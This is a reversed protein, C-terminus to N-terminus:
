FYMERQFSYFGARFKLAMNGAGLPSCIELPFSLLLTVSSLCSEKRRMDMM